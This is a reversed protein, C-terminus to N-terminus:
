KECDEDMRETTAAQEREGEEPASKTAKTERRGKGGRGLAGENAESSRGGEGHMEKGDRDKEQLERHSLTKRHRQADGRM